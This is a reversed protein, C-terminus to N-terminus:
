MVGICDEIIEWFENKIVSTWEAWSWPIGEAYERGHEDEWHFGYFESTFHHGMSYIEHYEDDNSLQM